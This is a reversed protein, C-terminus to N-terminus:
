ATDAPAETWYRPLEVVWAPRVDGSRALGFREIALQRARMAAEYSDAAACLAAVSELMPWLGTAPEVRWPHPLGRCRLGCSGFTARLHFPMVDPGFFLLYDEFEDGTQQDTWRGRRLFLAGRQAKRHYCFYRPGKRKPKKVHQDLDMADETEEVAKKKGKPKVEQFELDSEEPDSFGDRPM